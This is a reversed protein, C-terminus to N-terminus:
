RCRPVKRSVVICLRSIDYQIKNNVVYQSHRIFSDCAVVSFLAYLRKQREGVGETETHIEEITPQGSRVVM